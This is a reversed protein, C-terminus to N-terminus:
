STTSFRRYLLPFLVHTVGIAIVVLLPPQRIPRLGQPQGPRHHVPAIAEVAVPRAHQVGRRQPPQRILRLDHPRPRSIRRTGAQRVRQLDRLDGAPDAFCQARVRIQRLQCAQAVVNAVRRIPVVALARQIFGGGITAAELAVRLRQANEGPQLRLHQPVAGDTRASICAGRGDGVAQVESAGAQICGAFVRPPRDVLM